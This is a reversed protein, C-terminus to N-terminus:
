NPLQLRMGISIIRPSALTLVPTRGAEISRDFLNEGSAYVNMRKHFAHEAFADLSTYSHLLFTNTDDDFQRGSTRALLALTGWNARNARLGATAMQHAVQPIWKGILSPQQDFRTVTADAFQYGGTLALWPRPQLEYDLAVGTSRIQGLNARQKTIQTASASLTLATVPRNVVSWFYSARLTSNRSLTALQTGAEVGTARESLLNANALTTQQGVQGSRYLEYPTPSRFARFATATLAVNPTLRRVVGLRPNAVTEARDPIRTITQPATGSQKRQLTDFNSFHDVRMGASLTWAQLNLLAEGFGSTSRQRATTDVLGNPHNNTIPTENDTGRIDHVETGGLLILRRHLTGAWQVTGGFEQSPTELRRTLRDSVRGPAIASFSQRYHEGSGYLRLLGHGYGTPSWDAGGAYRWLRTANTQQATGNGRADNYGNGRLFASATTGLERRLEASANELHVNSRTDVPGRLSPAILTYGDTHIAGLAALGAWHNRAFTAASSIEHTNLSGESADLRFSNGEPVLRLLNVVGGIASSGYLDSAGGRVIEVSRITPPPFEEWHVWGGFADDLPVHDSIILTRSSATSGLGRLSLGQTTPNAILTSSRRFFELGPVQRIADGFSPAASDDLQKQTLTVTSAATADAPLPTGYATVSITDRRTIPSPPPSAPTAQGRAPAAAVPLLLCLVTKAM